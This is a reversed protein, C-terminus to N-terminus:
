ISGAAIEQFICFEYITFGQYLMREYAVVRM